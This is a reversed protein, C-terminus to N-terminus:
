PVGPEHRVEISLRQGFGAALQRLEREPIEIDAMLASDPLFRVLTGTTGNPAVPTLETVPVGAEYRQTWAGNRRRNTHVLWASLAAVVSMGRRPYGDPLFPPHPSDFFRIDRSSIVPKRVAQGEDEAYTDTGRGGDLISVSMDAYLSVLATGRGIHEAEETAYALVELVLHLPGNPAYIAPERRIREIHAHDVGSSWVHTTDQRSPEAGHRM